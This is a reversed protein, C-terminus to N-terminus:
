PVVVGDDPDGAARAHEQPPRAAVRRQGELERDLGRGREDRDPRVQLVREGQSVLAAGVHALVDAVELVELRELVKLACQGAETLEEADLRRHRHSIQVRAVEGRTHGLLEAQLRHDGDLVMVRMDCGHRRLVAHGVLHEPDGEVAHSEAM